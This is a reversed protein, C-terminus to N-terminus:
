RPTALSDQRLYRAAAARVSATLAALRPSDLRWRQWHLPIDIVDPSLRTLVGAALDARAQPEPLMAWGLGMRVAEYLDATSPVQHVVPPGQGVGHRRLMEHQLDDKDNFVIVPMASWGPAGDCRWRGALVPTAAPLYRLAGLPTVACGQVPAADSTVAALVEGGRLLEQSHGQDEVRLRIATGEWAAAEALVDRFWAALSDANVAVPLEVATATTLAQAAEDYLFRTQRGLRVLWEGQPTPRCPTGRSILVQGAATELARIRQSVASPTIHLQRAAADFSGHDAIAVLADLQGPNLDM